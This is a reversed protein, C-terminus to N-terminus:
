WALAPMGAAPRPAPDPFLAGLSREDLGDTSLHVGSAVYVSTLGAAHAGAIDTRVGDGIALVKSKPVARKALGDIAEFARDYIPLYPKGAYVVGGGRREYAEAVAGACPVVRDGRVVALDPNACVMPLGRSAFGDLLDAYTEPTETEDDFLGTCVIFQAQAPEVLSIALGDYLPLDREPGLHYAAKGDCAGILTRAVDGSSIIADYATAPVGIGDLQRAVSTWPRPANSLLVVLGGAARFRECAAVAPAFPALGNHIVGWLDVLWAEAREAFPAISEIIPIPNQEAAPM